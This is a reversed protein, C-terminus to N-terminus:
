DMGSGDDAYDDGDDTGGDSTAEEDENKNKAKRSASAGINEFYYASAEEYSGDFEVIGNNLIIGRTCFEAAVNVRNASMVFTVEPDSIMEMLHEKCRVTYAKNGFVFKEDFLLIEPKEYTYIAFSLRNIGAGKISRMQQDKMKGLGAFKFIAAERQKMVDRPWGLLTCRMEYNDRCTLTSDFGCKYDLIATVEGNVEISGKEPKIIGALLKMMTTKGGGPRTMIAVKEGKNIEFSVDRFVNNKEGANNLLLMHQMKQINRKYRRFTKRVNTVRIVAEGM